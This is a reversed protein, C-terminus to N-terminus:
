SDEPPKLGVLKFMQRRIAEDEILESFYQQPNMRGLRVVKRIQEALLSLPESREFFDAILTLQKFADERSLVNGVVMGGPAANASGVVGAVVMGGAAAAADITEAPAIAKIARQIDDLQERLANFSPKHESPLRDDLLQDLRALEEHIQSLDNQTARFFDVPTAAVARQIKDLSVAGKDLKKQQDDQPLTKLTHAELYQWLAYNDGSADGTIPVHRLPGLLVGGGGFGNLQALSLITAGPDSAEPRPYVTEWFQEILGNAIQLGKLLGAFGDTRVLAEIMYAVIELDKTRQTLADLGEDLLGQWAPLPDPPSGGFSNDWTELDREARRADGRHDRITYWPNSPSDDERLDIGSPNDGPIPELLLALDLDFTTAM